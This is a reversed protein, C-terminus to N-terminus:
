HRDTHIIIQANVMWAGCEDSKQTVISLHIEQAQDYNKARLAESLQVMEQITGPKLLTENNLNDFLIDLRKETDKVQPEFNKPAKSRVRQM